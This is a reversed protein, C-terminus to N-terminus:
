FDDEGDEQMETGLALRNDQKKGWGWAISEMVRRLHWIFSIGSRWTREGSLTKMLAEQLIDESHNPAFIRAIFKLRLFDADSLREIAERVEERTNSHKTM